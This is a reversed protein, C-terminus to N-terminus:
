RIPQPEDKLRHGDLHADVRNVEREESTIEEVSMDDREVLSAIQRLQDADEVPGTLRVLGTRDLGVAFPYTAIGLERAIERREDFVVDFGSRRGLWRVVEDADAGECVFAYSLTRDASLEALHGLLRDCTQCTTSLFVLLLPEQRNSLHVRDGSVTLLYPRKVGLRGYEASVESNRHREANLIVSGFFHYIAVLALMQLLVLIWLAVYSSLFLSSM